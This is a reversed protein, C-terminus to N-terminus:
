DLKGNKHFSNEFIIFIVKVIGIKAYLYEKTLVKRHNKYFYKWFERNVCNKFVRELKM